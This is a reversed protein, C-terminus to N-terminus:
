LLKPLSSGEGAGALERTESQLEGLKEKLEAIEEETLDEKNALRELDAAKRELLIAQVGNASEQLSSLGSAKSKVEAVLERIRDLEDQYDGRDFKAKEAMIFDGLEGLLDGVEAFVAKAREKDEPSGMFFYFGLLGILGLILLKVAFKIM